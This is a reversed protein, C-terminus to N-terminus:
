VILSLQLAAPMTWAAHELFHNKVGANEEDEGTTKGGNRERRPRRGGGGGGRRRGGGGPESRREGGEMGGRPPVTAEANRPSKVEEGKRKGRAMRRWKTLRGPTMKRIPM